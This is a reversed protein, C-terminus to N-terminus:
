ARLTTSSNCGSCHVRPAAGTIFSFSVARLQSRVAVENCPHKNIWNQATAAQEPTLQFNLPVTTNM